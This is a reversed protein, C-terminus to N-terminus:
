PLLKEEKSEIKETKYIRGASPIIALTAVVLLIKLYIIDNLLGVVGLASFAVIRGLALHIEFMSQDEIKFEELEKLKVSNFRQMNVINDLVAIFIANCFNYIIVTTKNINCVLGLVSLIPIISCIVIYKKAHEKKYFRKFIYISTITCISFITTLTGLNLASGFTMMIIITILQNLLSGTIGQFFAIKYNNRIGQAKNGLAKVKKMYKLINFNDETEQQVKIFRSAILQAITMCFIIGAVKSFSTLHISTGIVIPFIIKIIQNIIKSVSIYNKTTEKDGIATKLVHCPVYYIGQQIGYLIALVIYYDKCKEGLIAVMIVFICNLIIGFQYVKVRNKTKIIDGVLWFMLGIISYAILYYSSIITLNQNTLQLFYAILFTDLFIASVDNIKECILLPINKKDKTKM